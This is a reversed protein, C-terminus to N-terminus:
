RVKLPSHRAATGYPESGWGSLACGPWDKFKNFFDPIEGGLDKMVFDHM